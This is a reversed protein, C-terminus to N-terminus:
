VAEEPVNSYVVEVGEVPEVDGADFCLLAPSVKSADERTIRVEADGSVCIVLNDDIEALLKKLEGARLLGKTNM